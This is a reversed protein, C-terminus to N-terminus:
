VLTARFAKFHLRKVGSPKFPNLLMNTNTNTISCLRHIYSPTGPFTSFNIFKIPNTLPWGALGGEGTM